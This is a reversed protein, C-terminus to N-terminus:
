SKELAVPVGVIKAFQIVLDFLEGTFKNLVETIDKSDVKFKLREEEADNWARADVHQEAINLYEEFRGIVEDYTISDILVRKKIPCIYYFHPQKDIGKTLPKIQM